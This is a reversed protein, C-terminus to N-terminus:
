VASEHSSLSCGPSSLIPPSQRWHELYQADIAGPFQAANALIQAVTAGANDRLKILLYSLALPHGASLRYIREQEDHNPAPSLDAAQVIDLVDDRELPEMELRREPESLESLVTTPLGPLQDTQSGLVIIVGEPIATPEPLERLLSRIPQQERPIHDLGDVLIVTKRGTRRYDDSLLAFQAMLRESLAAEDGDPLTRGVRFGIEEIALVVDHLFNTAEGRHRSRGISPPVYAYYRVVRAEYRLTQTLLTSKGSGPSGLLLIYGSTLRTLAARLAASTVRVGRYPLDPEPFEHRHHFDARARWGVYDILEDRTLHVPETPDAVLTFLASTLQQYDRHWAAIEHSSNEENM